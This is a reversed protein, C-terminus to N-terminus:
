RAFGAIVTKAKELAEGIKTPDKGGAQAMDPKGGGGGGVVPAVEKVWNGASMGREVLEKSIGAVLLVKSDGQAAALMVAVPGIKKRIQDITGRMLNPNGGPLDACIVQIGSVEVANKILDDPSTGGASELQKLQSELKEVEAQASDIRSVADFIDVNIARATERLIKKSEIFNLKESNARSSSIPSPIESKGSDLQKKLQKSRAILLQTQEPVNRVDCNLLEACKNVDDIIQNQYAEAAAGTLVEIRRTGASQNSDSKIAMLGIESTNSAHTGGCLEKSFDGMSVMRCPDPYKEGFLMMAGASRADELSVLKAEISASSQVRDNATEEILQLTADDVGQHHSYDFRFADDWVKSGQQHADNGLHKQLSYHLIHTASHARRIANRRSTDVSATVEDGDKLEGSVLQGLHKIVDGDKKTDYVEFKGGASEITGKDGVQGGSEAYFPSENLVVISDTTTATLKELRQNSSDVLGQIVSTTETKEYGMFSTSKVENKIQEVAGGGGMVGKEGTNSTGEHETMMLQYHEMDPVLGADLTLKETLEIPVGYTTHLEFLQEGPFSTQKSERLTAIMPTVRAIGSEVVNLFGQEETKMTRQVREVTETLEPYTSKMIEVVQPVMQYLFSERLGLQYGDLFARRMLTRIVSNEAKAGPNTNEHISFTCARVHDAIRRLRRGDDSNPDYKIDCVEGAAEVLPRISDIHYNTDVGQMVATVRELGMGTDINKNPLPHLNNPPDGTRNFQTFVLNWIEVEKGGDPTYYIESCPGCVGDPGKSPAEAPWFNEDEEERSIRDGSLGIDNRWIEFAEEDDLYITVSLRDKDLGMWKKETLFEWAWNIAERKFYDGFSFNGLMEFFTHHYATRGVNDIDGTRLCKQCTTARTFDLEVNGLFHDKFQNMGAPTFLVTPDWKPVLVDSPRVAHGKEKFFDLYKERIENTKM